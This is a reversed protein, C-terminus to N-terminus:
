LLNKGFRFILYKSFLSVASLDPIQKIFINETSSKPLLDCTQNPLSIEM